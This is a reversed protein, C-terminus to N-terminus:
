GSVVIEENNEADCARVTIINNSDVQITYHTKVSTGEKPDFPLSKLYKALDSSMDLCYNTNASCVGYTLSCGSVGTGLQKEITDLGTPLTSGNDIVYQRVATLIFQADSVRRSNRADVFRKAPDLAVFVVVALVAIIGIVLLLEILTFGHSTHRLRKNM